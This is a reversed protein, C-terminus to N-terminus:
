FKGYATYKKGQRFLLGDVDWAKLSIEFGGRGYSYSTLKSVNVDYSVTISYRGMYIGCQPVLADNVRYNLNFIMGKEQKLGTIQSQEQMLYIIGGGVNVEWLKGQMSILATETYRVNTNPKSNQNYFFLNYRLKAIDPAGLGIDPRNLHYASLGIIMQDAAQRDGIRRNKTLIYSVGAGLDLYSKKEKLVETVGINNNYSVGDYQDPWKLAGADFSNQGYGVQIGSTFFGRRTKVIASIDGAALFKSFNSSGARDNFVNFGVGLFSKQKKQRSWTPLDLSLGMTNYPKGFAAWQSRYNLDVRGWNPSTGALAPNLSLPAEQFQSFHIDQARMLFALCIFFCSLLIRKM